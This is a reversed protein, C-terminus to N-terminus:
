VKAIDEQQPIEFYNAKKSINLLIGVSVSYMIIATGGYSIFPLPLGTTPVIGVNIATHMLFYVSLILVIGTALYFGFTDPARIAVKIGRWIIISFGIIIALSGIFGWEEGIVAFISDGYSEPLFLHSQKSKGAGLGVLGGSGISILSQTAHHEPENYGLFSLVRKASYGESMVAVGCLLIGVLFAVLLYKKNIKGIFMQSIGIIFILIMNSRNKQYLLVLCVLLLCLILPAFAEKFSKICEQKKTLMAAFFIVLSLKVLEVPQFLPLFGISLWRKAGNHETGWILVFFLLLFSILMIPKSLKQWTHYNIRSFCIISLISVSVMLIHRMFLYTQDGFKAISYPASASYVFVVSLTLMGLVPLLIWWDLYTKIKNLKTKM